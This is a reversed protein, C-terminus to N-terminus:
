SDVSYATGRLGFGQELGQLVYFENLINLGRHWNGCGLSWNQQIGGFWDNLGSYWTGADKLSPLGPLGLARFGFPLDCPSNHLKFSM